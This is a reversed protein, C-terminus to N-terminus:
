KGNGDSTRWEITISQRIKSLSCSQNTQKNQIYAYLVKVAKLM